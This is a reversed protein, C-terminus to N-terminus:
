VARRGGGGAIAAGTIDSARACALFAIVEPHSARCM